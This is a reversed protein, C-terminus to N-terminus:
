AREELATRAELSRVTVSLGSFAANGSLRDLMEEDTVDNLSAGAHNTAVRMEVGPRDHGWGHPLSVVGEMMEDSVEVPVRVDGVRSALVAISGTSLGRARADKPSMLLTCRAPGKVLAHSNHLWSNNSRLHRRGVLVLEGARRRADAADIGRELRGLERLFRPPAAQVRRNPTALLSALRPALPGLDIGHPAKRLRSLTLGEAKTGFLGAGQPGLRLFLDLLGETGFRKLAAVSAKRVWAPVGRGELHIRLGLEILIEWDHLAGPRREVAADVFKAVNRVAFANLAVDYHPRELQSVPPLIVDAHRTTENMYSDVCVMFDLKALARDLRRGNPSSLVPNGACTLLARVQGPGPTEIEESLTAVPVEGGVEPVGRVRSRFKDYSVLGMMKTLFLVDVAPTTFMAGGPRDLNGTVVNLAYVLWAAITGHEQHCVGIRGYVAARDAAALGRAIRAVTEAGVGTVGACREPSFPRCARELAEIGDIPLGSREPRALKEAFLVHLISLLLWPDTGPRVFVHEDAVEATETRRPDVVVVKGSRARIDALRRKMDPATMLSGNSVLPNAGIVLFFQTRDLDPVPMMVPHGFMEHAAMMHPVQDTSSASSLNRTGFNRLVVQGFTLLGLNHATPNGQYVALADNGYSRRVRALGEAAYDLAEDWSAERFKEGERIMPTVLRDPDEHLDRMGIVKPCVYGRSMPDEPDGRVSLVKRGETEVVIGCAAECLTCTALKRTPM